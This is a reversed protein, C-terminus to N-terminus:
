QQKNSESVHRSLADDANARLMLSLVSDDSMSSSWLASSVPQDGAISATQIEASSATTDTRMSLGAFAVVAIVLAAAVPALRWTWRRFDLSDVWSAPARMASTVRAYFAPSAELAPRLQLSTRVLTQAALAARCNDCTTLHRDLAEREAADLLGDAGRVILREFEPHHTGAQTM